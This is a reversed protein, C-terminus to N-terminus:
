CPVRFARNPRLNEPELSLYEIQYTQMGKIRTDSCAVAKFNSDKSTLPDLKVSQFGRSVTLVFGPALLIFLATPGVLQMLAQNNAM